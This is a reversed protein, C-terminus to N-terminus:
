SIITNDAPTVEIVGSETMQIVSPPSSTNNSHDETNMVAHINTNNAVVIDNGFLTQYHLLTNTALLTTGIWLWNFVIIAVGVNLITSITVGAQVGSLIILTLLQKKKLKMEDVTTSGYAHWLWVCYFLQIAHVVALLVLPLLLGLFVYSGCLAVTIFTFTVLYLIPYILSLGNVLYVGMSHQFSPTSERMSYVYSRILYVVLLAELLAGLIAVTSFPLFTAVVVIGSVLDLITSVLLLLYMKSRTKYWRWLYLICAIAATAIYIYGILQNAPSNRPMFYKEHKHGNKGSM